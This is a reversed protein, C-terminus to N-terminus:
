GRCRRRTRAGILARHMLELDALKALMATVTFPVNTLRQVQPLGAGAASQLRAWLSKAAESLEAATAEVSRVFVGHGASAVDLLVPSVLYRIDSTVDRATIGIPGATLSTPVLGVDNVCRALLWIDQAIKVPPRDRLYAEGEHLTCFRLADSNSGGTLLSLPPTHYADAM